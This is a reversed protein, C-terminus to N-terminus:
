GATGFAPAPEDLVSDTDVIGDVVVVVVVEAVVEVAEDAGMLRMDVVYGKKISPM